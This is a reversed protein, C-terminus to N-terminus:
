GGFVGTLYDERQQLLKYLAALKLPREREKAQPEGLGKLDHESRILFKTWEGNTPVDTMDVKPNWGRFQEPSAYLTLLHQCLM